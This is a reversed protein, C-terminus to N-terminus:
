YGSHDDLSRIPGRLFSYKINNRNHRLFLSMIAYLKGFFLFYDGWHAGGVLPICLCDANNSGHLLDWRSRGIEDSV